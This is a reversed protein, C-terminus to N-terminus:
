DASSSTNNQAIRFIALYGTGSGTSNTLNTLLGFGTGSLSTTLISSKGDISVSFDSAAPTPFPSNYIAISNATTNGSNMELVGTGENVSLYGGDKTETFNTNYQNQSSFDYVLTGAALFSPALAVAAGMVRIMFMRMVRM